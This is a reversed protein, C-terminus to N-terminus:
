PSSSREADRVSVRSVEEVFVKYVGMGMAMTMLAGLPGAINAVSVTVREGVALDVDLRRTYLRNTVKVTHPGPELEVEASKGYALDVLFDDDVFVDLARIKIDRDSTRSIILHGTLQEMSPSTMIASDDPPGWLNLRVRM